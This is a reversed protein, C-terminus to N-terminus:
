TCTPRSRATAGAVLLVKTLGAIGAAPELHGINTKVSGVVVPSQAPRDGYVAHISRLEIPDGLATGTGHAEVYDIDAPALGADLLAARMLQQQSEPNPVTM